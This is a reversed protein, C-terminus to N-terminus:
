HRRSTGESPGLGDGGLDRGWRRGRQGQRITDREGVGEGDGSQDETGRAVGVRGGWGM